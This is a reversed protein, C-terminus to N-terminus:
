NSPGTPSARPPMPSPSTFRDPFTRSLHEAPQPGPPSGPPSAPPSAPPGTSMQRGTGQWRRRRPPIPLHRQVPLLGPQQSTTSGCLRAPHGRPQASGDPVAPSGRDQDTVPVSIAEVRPAGAGAAPRTAASEGFAPVNTSAESAEGPSPKAGTTLAPPQSGGAGANPSTPAPAALREEPSETAPIAMSLSATSRDPSAPLGTKGAGSQDETAVGGDVFNQGPAEASALRVAPAGSAPANLAGRDPSAQQAESERRDEMDPVANPGGGAAPLPVVTDPMVSGDPSITEALPGEAEEPPRSDVLGAFESLFAAGRDPDTGRQREIAPAATIDRM